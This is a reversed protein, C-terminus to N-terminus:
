QVNDVGAPVLARLRGALFLATRAEELGRYQVRDMMKLLIAIEEGTLPSPPATPLNTNAM